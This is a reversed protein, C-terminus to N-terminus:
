QGTLTNGQSPFFFAEAINERSCDGGAYAYTCERCLRLKEWNGRFQRRLRRYPKGRWINKFTDMRLSGLPNEEDYDFTCSCVAGNWHIVSEKWLTKCPNKPLRMRNGMNDCRFRRYRPDLPVYDDRPGAVLNLTKLTLANVGLSRALNKLKAIEHENHRMVIFRLNILPTQSNLARKRAVITRIGQIVAAFEGRQRYREYTEQSVGDLAVILGDLGSRVLRDAHEAQAFLHGNTSCVLKIGKQKAYAIMEYSQLNLFPEGWDYLFILFLYEGVEDIVKKFLNFDMNGSPRHMGTTVPCLPCRLNCRNTPELILSTPWGWPRTSRALASSETVLLNIIKKFPVNHFYYPIRDHEIVIRRTGLAKIAKFMKKILDAIM